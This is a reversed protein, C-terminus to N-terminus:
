CGAPRARFFATVIRDVTDELWRREDADLGAAAKPHLSRLGKVSRGSFFRAYVLANLHEGVASQHTNDAYLRAWLEPRAERVAQWVRMVPVAQAGPTQRAAEEVALASSPFQPSGPDGQYSWLQQFLLTAGSHRAAQVFPLVAALYARASGYGEYYGQLNIADYRRQAALTLTRPNRAHDAFNAGGQLQAEFSMSIGLEALLPALRAPMPGIDYTGIDPATNTLSNGIWLVRLPSGRPLGGARAPHEDCTAATAAASTLAVCVFACLHLTASLLRRSPAPARDATMRGNHGVRRVTSATAAPVVIVPAM